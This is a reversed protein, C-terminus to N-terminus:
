APSAQEAIAKAFPRLGLLFAACGLPGIIAAVISMSYGVEAPNKFFRDTFLAISTPGLATGILSVVFLYLASMRARLRSPTLKQIAAAGAAFAFGGSFFVLSFLAVSLAPDSMLPGAIGGVTHLVIAILGIRLTGAPLHVWRDALAGGAFAGLTGLCLVAIGLNQGAHAASFGYHRILFTPAWSAVGTYALGCISFGIFHAAIAAKHAGLFRRFLAPAPPVAATHMSHRPEHITLALLAVVVGPLGVIFFVLQWGHFVGFPTNIMGMKTAVGVVAGGILLALGSGVYIGSGFVGLARGRRNEPFLDAIISYTAPSLAAEGVGVGLRAAFLRWFNTALGCAATMLSWVFIGAAVILRRSGRDAWIAIPIGMTTYFIAFALGQLLSVQTDSILLDHRLPEVLLSLITRDVFSVVYATFLVIVAWWARAPSPYNESEAMVHYTEHV